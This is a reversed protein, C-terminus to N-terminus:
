DKLYKVLAAIATHIDSESHCCSMFFRLRAANHPVAPFFMPQVNIGENFMQHSLKLARLRDGVIVPIVASDKSLGTNFRHERALHLFLQANHLLKEVREPEAKLVTLAALSAAVSPPPLGVSFIFGPATCKLYEVLESTGAIYGGCSAMSKSLTGMWIDVATPDIGFHESVGRGTKGLAGFSHAEDVMLFAGHRRKLQIFEPLNPIDGDASYVGEIVILAREYQTRFKTLLAELNEWDNHAFGVLKAGSFQCGQTVSNHSWADYFIVDRPGFLHSITTVNTAHGAVFVVADEVGIFDAIAAELQDHIPKQGSAPRSASVSTGYDDIAEKAAQSVVPHGSLGLYNYTAFSLLTRGDIKTTAQITGEHTAFYPNRIGTTRLLQQDRRLAAYGPVLEVGSPQAAVGTGAERHAKQRLLKAVLARKEEPSLNKSTSNSRSM